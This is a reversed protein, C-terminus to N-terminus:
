SDVEGDTIIAQGNKNLCRYSLTTTDICVKNKITEKDTKGTFSCKRFARCAQISTFVIKVKILNLDRLKQITTAPLSIDVIKAIRLLEIPDM